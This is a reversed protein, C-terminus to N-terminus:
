SAWKCPKSYKKYIEAHGEKVLLQQLNKGNFSLEGVTRGYKDETVRRISVKEGKIIENLFNKAAIAKNPEARKGKIEPTDICALRIKEGETSTCTDGDYCDKITIEGIEPKNSKRGLAECAEGDNDRDLYSHGAQLFKQAKSWDGIDGCRQKERDSFSIKNCEPFATAESGEYICSIEGTTFDYLFSPQTKLNKPIISVLSFNENGTCKSTEENDFEYGILNSPTFILERGLSNNSECEIKISKISNAAIVKEANKIVESFRPFAIIGIISFLGVVTILEILSFGENSKNLKNFLYL